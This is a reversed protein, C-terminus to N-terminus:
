TLSAPYSDVSIPPPITYGGEDINENESRPSLRGTLYSRGSAPMRATSGSPGSNQNSLLGDSSDIDEKTAM